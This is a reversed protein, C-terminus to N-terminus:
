HLTLSSTVSFDQTQSGIPTSECTIFWSLSFYQQEQNWITLHVHRCPEESCLFCVNQKNRQTKKKKFLVQLIKMSINKTSVCFIRYNSKKKKQHFFQICLFLCKKGSAIKGVFLSLCMNRPSKGNDTRQISEETTVLYCIYHSSSKCHIIMQFKVIKILIRGASTYKKLEPRM